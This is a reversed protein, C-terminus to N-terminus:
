DEKGTTAARDRLHREDGLPDGSPEGLSDLSLSAIKAVIADSNLRRLWQRGTLDTGEINGEVGVRGGASIGDMGRFIVRRKYWPIGALYEAQNSGELWSSARLLIADTGSSNQREKSTPFSERKSHVVGM